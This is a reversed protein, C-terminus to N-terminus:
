ATEAAEETASPVRDRRKRGSRLSAGLATLCLAALPPFLLALTPLPQEMFFDAVTMGSRLYLAFLLLSVALWLGNRVADALFSGEAFLRGLSFLLNLCVALLWLALLARHVFSLTSDKSFASGLDRLLPVRPYSFALTGVLTLLLMLSNLAGRGRALLLALVILLAVAALATVTTPLDLEEWSFREFSLAQLLLCGVAPLGYAAAVLIGNALCFRKADKPRLFALVTLVLSALVSFMILYIEAFLFLPLMGALGSGLDPVRISGRLVEVIVGLLTGRMIPEGGALLSGLPAHLSAGLFLGMVALASFVACCVAYLLAHSREGGEGEQRILAEELRRDDRDTTM